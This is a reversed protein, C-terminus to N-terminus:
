ITINKEENKDKITIIACKEKKRAVLMARGLFAHVSNSKYDDLTIPNASGFGLVEGGEINSTLLDNRQTDIYGNKDKYEIYIYTLDKGSFDKRLTLNSSSVSSLEVEEKVEDSIGLAKITGLEYNLEYTTYGGVVKNRGLSKDNLFLEVYPYKSYVEVIVKKGVNERGYTYTERSNTWRWASKTEKEDYLYTAIKLSYKGYTVGALLAEGTPIGILDFAGANALIWPYPKAFHHDYDFYAGVGVEGLYDIGTWIFDGIVQSYKNMREFNNYIDKCMTETGVIIREPHIKNDLEYRKYAYNYGALDLLKFTEISCEESDKACAIDAMADGFKVIIDNYEDVVEDSNSYVEDMKYKKKHNALEKRALNTFNVGMTSPRYDNEHIFNVLKNLIKFGREDLITPSALENGLSYMIVSPHNYDKDIMSKLDNICNHEFETAYDYETKHYIWMDTLEDMVLIGLDDCAKLLTDSAPNHSSRIANFGADKLLKLRKYEADYLSVAGLIGNDHHLCAGKLITKVGNLFFGLPSYKITRFGYKFSYTDIINSDDLLFLKIDYQKPNELSWPIVDLKLEGCSNNGKSILTNGDYVEIITKLNDGTHSLNYKLITPNISITNFRLESINFHYKGGIYLEVGRYLGSGSYWRSNPVLSNDVTITITNSSGFILDNTLEVFFDTYGYNHSVLEKDNLYVKSNRYAGLIHLFFTNNSFEKPVIFSKKYTYFGGNFYAGGGGCMGDKSRGEELMADHPLDVIKEKGNRIFTWKDNFEKLIM